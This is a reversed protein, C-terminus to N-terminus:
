RNEGYSLKLMCLRNAKIMTEAGRAWIKGDKIVPEFLSRIGCNWWTLAPMVDMHGYGGIRDASVSRHNKRWLYGTEKPRM